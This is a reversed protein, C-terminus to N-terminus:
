ECGLSICRGQERVRRRMQRLFPEPSLVRAVPGFGLIRLLVETEDARPYWVSVRCREGEFVSQKEYASFEVLFREIANREPLVEVVVPEKCRVEELVCPAMCHERSAGIELIRGLNVTAHSINRGRGMHACHVRFKDDKESYELKLPLYDGTIRRARVGRPGSQYTIKLSTGNRLAWLVQRFHRIYIDSEYPDGDLCRDFYRFRGADYLPKVKELTKNLCAIEQDALFLRARPDALVAKLWRLELLSVPLRPPHTLRSHWLGDREELLPWAHGLLKPILQLVSEGFGSEAVMRRIEGAPLPAKALLEGVIRYYTGYIESFLEM